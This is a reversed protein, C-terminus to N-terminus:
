ICNRLISNLTALITTSFSKFLYSSSFIRSLFLLIRLRILPIPSPTSLLPNLPYKPIWLFPHVLPPYTMLSSIPLSLFSIIVGYKWNPNIHQVMSRFSSLLCTHFLFCHAWNSSKLKLHWHSRGSLPGISVVVRFCSSLDLRSFFISTM